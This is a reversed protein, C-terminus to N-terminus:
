WGLLQSKSIAPAKQQTRKRLALDERSYRIAAITDDNIEVFEETITGDKLERRKFGQFEKASNPCLGTHINIVDFACLYDIGMKLSGKPKKAGSISYGKDRFGKIRAPEASDAIIVNNHSCYEYNDVKNEWEPIKLKRHYLEPFLYLEKEKVTSGMLTSAHEFGFDMGWREDPYKRILDIDYNWIKLNNFVKAESIVGWEGLCYVKYYYYDEKEYDILTQKYDEDIFKNDRYTTHKITTDDRKHDFFYKKIYHDADIPNFTFYFQKKEGLGRLRLFIQKIDKASFETAEEIWIKTIGKISKIKEPDDLGKMIVFNGSNHEFRKLTQNIKIKHDQNNEFIVEKLEAYTSDLVTTSVKRLVLWNIEKSSILDSFVYQAMSVSKGSGSGGYIIIFRNKDKWLFQFSKNLDM